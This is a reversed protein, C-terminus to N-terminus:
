MGEPPAVKGAVFDRIRKAVLLEGRSGTKPARDPYCSPTFLFNAEDCTIDFLEMAADDYETDEGYMTTEIYVRGIDYQPDVRYSLGARKFAGTIAALGMACAQTGCSVPVARADLSLRRSPEVVTGLNFKVGTKNKADAELLDALKLLRRKNV